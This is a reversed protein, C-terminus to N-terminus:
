RPKMKRLNSILNIIWEDDDSKDSLLTRSLTALLKMNDPKCYYPKGSHDSHKSCGFSWGYIISSNRHYSCRLEANENIQIRSGCNGHNWFSAVSNDCGVAPCTM